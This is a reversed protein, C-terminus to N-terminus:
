KDPREASATREGLASVGRIKNMGRKLKASQKAVVKAKTEVDDLFEALETHGNREAVDSPFCHWRDELLVDIDKSILCKNAELHGESAAFHAASWQDDDIANINADHELLVRVVASLGAHAALHLPTKGLSDRTDVYADPMTALLTVV